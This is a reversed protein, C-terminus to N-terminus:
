GGLLNSSAAQDQSRFKSKHNSQEKTITNRDEVEKPRTEATCAGILDAWASRTSQLWAEEWFFNEQEQKKPDAKSALSELTTIRKSVEDMADDGFM